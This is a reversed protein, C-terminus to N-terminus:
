HHAGGPSVLERQATEGRAHAGHLPGQFMELPNRVLLPVPAQILEKGRQSDGVLPDELVQHERPVVHVRDPAQAEGDARMGDIMRNKGAHRGLAGPGLYETGPGHDFRGTAGGGAREGVGVPARLVVRLGDLAEHALCTEGAGDGGAEAEISRVGIGPLQAAASRPFMVQGGEGQLEGPVPQGRAGLIRLGRMHPITPYTPSRLATSTMRSPSLRSSYRPYSEAPSATRSPAWRAIRRLRPLIPCRSARRPRSGAAPDVPSP